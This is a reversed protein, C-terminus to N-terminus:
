KYKKELKQAGNPYVRYRKFGMAEYFKANYALVEIKTADLTNLAFEILENTMQQGIGSGRRSPHVWVGKIRYGKNVQMLGCFCPQAANNDFMFWFTNKSDKASVRDKAAKSAFPLIQAYPVVHMIQGFTHRHTDM